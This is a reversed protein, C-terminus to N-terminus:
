LAAPLGQLLPHVTGAVACLCPVDILWARLSAQEACAAAPLLTSPATACKPSTHIRLPKHCRAFCVDFYVVIAHIYDNRTATLKFPAQACAGTLLVCCSRTPRCDAPMRERSPLNNM